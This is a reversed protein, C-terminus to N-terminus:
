FFPWRESGHLPVRVCAGRRSSSATSSKVPTKTTTPPSSSSSSSTASSAREHREIDKFHKSHRKKRKQRGNRQQQQNQHTQQQSHQQQQQEPKLTRTLINESSNYKQKLNPNARRCPYCYYHVLCTEIQARKVKLDWKNNICSYHFWRECRECALMLGIFGTKDCYICDDGM